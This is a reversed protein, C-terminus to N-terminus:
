YIISIPVVFGTARGAGASVIINSGTTNIASLQEDTLGISANAGIHLELNEVGDIGANLFVNKNSEIDISEEKSNREFFNNEELKEIAPSYADPDM